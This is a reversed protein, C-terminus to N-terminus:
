AHAWSEESRAIDEPTMSSLRATKNAELAAATRNAIPGLRFNEPKMVLYTREFIATTEHGTVLIAEAPSYGKDEVLRTGCDRRSDHMRLGVIGCEKKADIYRAECSKDNYPLIRPENQDRTEWWAVLLAQAEVTLAVRKSKNRNKPDKMKHVVITQGERDWDTWEIRCSESIRRASRYQWDAVKVMDIKNRPRLNERAFVALLAAHEEPTPRRTRPTSKCILNHKTLFPKAAALAADSVEICDDWASGAYKLAGSLYTFDQQVTQPKIGADKRMRCHAIVDGKTLASALLAGIPSRQLMRLSYRHSLGLTKVPPRGDLGDMEVIYRRIVVAVTLQEQTAVFQAYNLRPKSVELHAEM